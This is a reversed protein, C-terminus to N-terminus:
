KHNAPFFTCVWCSLVGQKVALMGIYLINVKCQFTSCSEWVSAVSISRKIDIDTYWLHWWGFEVIVLISRSIRELKYVGPM